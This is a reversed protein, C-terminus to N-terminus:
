RSRPAAADRSTSRRRLIPGSSTKRKSHLPTCLVLAEERVRGEGGIMEVQVDLPKAVNPAYVARVLCEGAGRKVADIALERAVRAGFRDVHTPHKGYIAGGGLPVRPGYYDMVLKRGTQGNDKQSGADSLPGNPNVLLEVDAWRAVWRPDGLRLRTYREALVANVRAALGLVPLAEPHELTVLVHELGFGEADEKLRVILKGDPGCLALAGGRCADWLADRFELVLFHEPPLFRVKADYGAWGIVIAQDNVHRSWRRPDVDYRCVANTVQWQKMPGEPNVARAVADLADTAIREVDLAPGRAAYGGSLWLQDCWIGAEIQAYAEPDVALAAQVLCEAVHDCLKDPHGPLVAESVRIM